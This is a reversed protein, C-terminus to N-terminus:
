GEGFGLDTGRGAHVLALKQYHKAHEILEAAEEPSNQRIVKGPVGVVLSLPP